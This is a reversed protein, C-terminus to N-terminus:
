FAFGISVRATPYNVTANGADNAKAFIKKAGVGLGIYFTQPPGLLWNYDLAVGLTPGSVKTEGSNGFDSNGGERISTYGVQGGFSFGRFTSAEPYYKLKVDGSMYRLSFANDDHNWYSGGVGVTWTPAVAHEVEAAYVNFIASLPQISIVTTKPTAVSQAGGAAALSVSAATFLAVRIFRM